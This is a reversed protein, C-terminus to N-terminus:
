ACHPGYFFRKIKATIRRSLATPALSKEQKERAQANANQRRIFQISEISKFLPHNDYLYVHQGDGVPIKYYYAPDNGMDSDLSPAIQNNIVIRALERNCLPSDIVAVKSLLTTEEPSLTRKPYLM